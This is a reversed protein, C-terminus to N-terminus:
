HWLNTTLRCLPEGGKRVKGGGCPVAGPRGFHVKEVQVVPSACLQAPHRRKLMM